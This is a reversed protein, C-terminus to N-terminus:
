KVLVRRTFDAVAVIYLGHPLPVVTEGPNVAGSFYTAGDMGYVAAHCTKRTELVLLGDRCFADWSRYDSEVGDIGSDRYDTIALDDLLMRKGSTKLVKIRVKGSVNVVFSCCGYTTTTVDASGASQWSAGADTSYQLEIKVAGDKASWERAYFTVTGAGDPKDEIMYICGDPDSNGFRVAQRGGNSTDGSWIGADHFYWRAATGSYEHDDYTDCKTNDAEFDEIFSTVGSIKGEIEADDNIYDGVTATIGSTYTGDNDGYLRLYIRDEEPSIVITTAWTTKDSSLQFPSSVTLTIDTSINEIDVLLEVPESPEGPLAHLYLDGDYLFQISPIPAATTVTVSNSTHSQSKLNYTYTTEPELGDVVYREEAATVSRPYGDVPGNADRVELTYCGSADADGVYTWNATFQGDSIDTAAAAPLGDFVQVTVTSRASVDGSTLTLTGAYTGAATPSYAVTLAAGNDSSADSAQLVSPSVSFGAGSVTASINEKLSWGKVQITMSKQISTATVGMDLTSGDAPTSITPDSTINYSWKGTKKDGWIYEAMEPHDIFPNRNNQFSSVADNRKKEKDSVPDQHHWKLLLDIAWSSFVPYGNGALMPSSFGGIRDNYCAAMYFYTRALDGKYEDDPEFVIGSYGTFTSSGLRGLAQISGNSPLRTGNACEGYPYNSRQGNVKGDTPYVHFADSYMPSQKNFWSKPMSHERNYCDGVLKYNGCRQSNVPWEKTSYMDWIKGNPKVDSQKYVDYLNDYGVVDHSGITQHLASLLAAGGKNQCNIYYNAPEEAHLCHSGMALAILLIAKKYIGIM